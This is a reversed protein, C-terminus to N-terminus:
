LWVSNSLTTNEENGMKVQFISYQEGCKSIWLYRLVLHQM